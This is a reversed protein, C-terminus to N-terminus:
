VFYSYHVFVVATCVLAHRLCIFLLGTLQSFLLLQCSGCGMESVNIFASYGATWNENRIVITNM